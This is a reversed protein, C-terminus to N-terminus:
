NTNCEIDKLNNYTIEKDEITEISKTNISNPKFRVFITTLVSVEIDTKIIYRPKTMNNLLWIKITYDTSGAVMMDGENNSIMVISTVSDTFENLKYLPENQEKNDRDLKWIYISSGCANAIHKDNNYSYIILSNVRNNRDSHNDNNYVIFKSVLHNNQQDNLGIINTKINVKNCPSLNWLLIVSDGASAFFVEKNITVLKRLCKINSSHGTM